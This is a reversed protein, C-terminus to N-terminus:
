KRKMIATEAGEDTMKLTSGSCTATTRTLGPEFDEFDDAGTYETRKEGAIDSRVVGSIDNTVIDLRDSGSVKWTGVMDIDMDISFSVGDKVGATSIVMSLDFNGNKKFAFALNIDAESGLEDRLYDQIGEIDSDRDFVKLADPGIDWDGVICAELSGRGGFDTGKDDDSKSKSKPKSDSSSPSSGVRNDNNGQNCGAVLVLALLPAVILASRRM